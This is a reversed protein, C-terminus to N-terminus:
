SKLGAALTPWSKALQDAWYPWSHTGPSGLDFTAPINLAVLRDRLLRTCFDTGVEIAGGIVLTDLDELTEYREHPGPLGSASFLYISKGRLAEANVLLDHAAWGEDLPGGLMNNANGGYGAVISRMVTQGLVGESLFCGSYAAVASYKDPNRAALMMASQAGMSLGAIGDTGNGEFEADILPPLEQTLFTEFRYRGLRPDDNEWDTYFSAPGALPLVVNVNKDRFFEAANGKRLWISSSPENEGSGSLMYLTPRPGQREAPTLVQVEITRDMSPSYVSLWTLTPNTDIRNEIRAPQSPAPNELDIDQAAAPVGAVFTLLVAMVVLVPRVGFM